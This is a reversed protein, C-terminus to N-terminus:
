EARGLVKIYQLMSIKPIKFARGVKLSSLTGENLIRYVTKSSVRLIESVQNVNLVDPYNHLVNKYIDSLALTKDLTTIKDVSVVNPIDVRNLEQFKM